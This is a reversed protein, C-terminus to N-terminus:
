LFAHKIRPSVTDPVQVLAHIYCTQPCIPPSCATLIADHLVILQPNTSVLWHRLFFRHSPLQKSDSQLEFQLELYPARLSDALNRDSKVDILRWSIRATHMAHLAGITICTSPKLLRSASKITMICWPDNHWHTIIREPKM